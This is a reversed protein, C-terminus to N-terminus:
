RSLDVLDTGGGTDWGNLIRCGRGQIYLSMHVISYRHIGCDCDSCFSSFGTIDSYETKYCIVAFFIKYSYPGTTYMTMPILRFACM